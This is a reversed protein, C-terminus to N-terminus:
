KNEKEQIAIYAQRLFEIKMRSSRSFFHNVRKTGFKDALVSRVKETIEILDEDSLEKM